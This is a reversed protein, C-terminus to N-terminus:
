LNLNDPPPPLPRSSEHTTLPALFISRLLDLREEHRKQVAKEREEARMEQRVLHATIDKEFKMRTTRREKKPPASSDHSEDKEYQEIDEGLVIAGSQVDIDHLIAKARAEWKDREGGGSTAGHCLERFKTKLAHSTREPRKWKMAYKENFWTEVLGWKQDSVPLIEEVADM